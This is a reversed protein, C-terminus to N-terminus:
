KERDSEFVRRLTFATEFIQRQHYGNKNRKSGNLKLYLCTELPIWKVNDVNETNEAIMTRVADM